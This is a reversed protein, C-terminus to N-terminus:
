KTTISIAEYGLDLRDIRNSIKAAASLKSSLYRRCEDANLQDRVLPRAAVGSIESPAISVSLKMAEVRLTSFFAWAVVALSM